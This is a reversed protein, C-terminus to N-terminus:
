RDGELPLFYDKRKYCSLYFDYGLPINVFEYDRLFCPQMIIESEQIKHRMEEVGRRNRHIQINGLLLLDPEKALVYAGDTKMHGPQSAVIHGERAIHVETLGLIDVITMDTYYGIAGTSGLGISTHPPLIEQLRMGLRAFVKVTTREGEFPGYRLVGPFLVILVLVLTVLPVPNSHARETTQATKRSGTGIVGEGVMMMILPLTPLLLRYYPMWDGGLLLVAAWHVIVFILPLLFAHTRLLRKEMLLLGLLLLYGYSAFFGGVYDSGNRLMLNLPGTKAYFTNPVLSGFYFWKWAAYPAYLLILIGSGTLLVERKNRRRVLLMIWALGYFLLGEPRVLGLLGFAALVPGPRRQQRLFIFGLLLLATYLPIETGSFSWTLLPASVALLMPPLFAALDANWGEATAGAAAHRSAAYALVLIAVSCLLSLVRSTVLLPLGIKEAFVLIILWLFNSYGEIREGRNFAFGDGRAVNRAYRLTIFTDDPLYHYFSLGTFFLALVILSLITIRCRATM